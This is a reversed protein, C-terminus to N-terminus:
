LAEELLSVFIQELSRQKTHVDRLELRAREIAGLMETVHNHDSGGDYTYTLM